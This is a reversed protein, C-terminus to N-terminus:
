ACIAALVLINFAPSDALFSVENAFRTDVLPTVHDESVLLSFARNTARSKCLLSVAELVVPM